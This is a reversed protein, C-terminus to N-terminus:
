DDEYLLFSDDAGPYITLTTPETSPQGTWQRVPDLPVISGAKVYLPLIDLTVPGTVEQGGNIAREDWFDFWQGQPLYLTRDTAAKECVPAVLISRGWLYQDGRRSAEPDRPYHLWMARMVPMGTLCCERVVSYTYPLLRYRLE